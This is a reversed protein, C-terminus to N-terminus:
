EAEALLVFSNNSVPSVNYEKIHEITKLYKEAEEFAAQMPSLASNGKITIIKSMFGGDIFEVTIKWKKISHFSKVKTEKKAEKEKPEETISSTYRITDPLFSRTNIDKANAQIIILFNLVIAIKRKINKM